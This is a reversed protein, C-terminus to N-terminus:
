NCNTCKVELQSKEPKITGDNLYLGPLYYEAVKFGEIIEPGELPIRKETKSVYTVAVGEALAGKKNRVFVTIKGNPDPNSIEAVDIKTSKCSFIHRESSDRFGDSCVVSGDQDAGAQCDIGGHTSCTLLLDKPVKVEAKMIDPLEAKKADTSSKKTSFHTVGNSDTWQYIEEALLSFNILLLSLLLKIM